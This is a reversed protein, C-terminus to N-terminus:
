GRNNQLLDQLSINFYQELKSLFADENLIKEEQQEGEIVGHLSTDTLSLKGEPFLKTILKSEKYSSQRDTQYFQHMQLFEIGQTESLSFKYITSFSSMDHSKKLIWNGDADEFLGMYRNFDVQLKHELVEKPSYLNETLGVDVLWLKEELEVLIVMHQYPSGFAKGDWLSTASIICSFGLQNLLHFLLYNLELPLGGRQGPMVKNFIQHIDWPVSKGFHLSLNEVPIELQHVRQIKKLYDLSPAERKLGLRELYTIVDINPLKPRNQFYNLRRM